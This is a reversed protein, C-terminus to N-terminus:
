KERKKAKRRRKGPAKRGQGSVESATGMPVREGLHITQVMSLVVKEVPESRSVISRVKAFYARQLERLRELDAASVGCLTYM